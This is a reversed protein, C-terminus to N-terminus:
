QHLYVLNCVLNYPALQILFKIFYGCIVSCAASKRLNQRTLRCRIQSAVVSNFIPKQTHLGQNVLNLLLFALPLIQGWQERNFIPKQTHLGQNVLNLLLFALPLIQGWQERPSGQNLLNLLLFALDSGM